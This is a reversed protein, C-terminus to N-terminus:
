TSTENNDSEDSFCKEEIEEYRERVISSWKKITEAYVTGDGSPVSTFYNTSIKALLVASNIAPNSLGYVSRGVPNLNEMSPVGIRNYTGKPSPHVIHNASYYLKKWASTAFKCQKQIEEFSVGDKDSSTFCSAAKAWVNQAINNSFSNEYYAKAVNEGNNSIFESIICLEYISRVRAYAGDALGGKLLHLIELYQQCARGHLYAMVSFMYKKGELEEKPLELVCASYAHGSETALLYMAESAFFGNNWLQENHALFNNTEARENLVIENIHGRISEINDDSIINVLAKLGSEMRREIEDDSLEKDKSRIFANKVSRLLTAM